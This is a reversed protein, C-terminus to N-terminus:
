SYDDLFMCYEENIRLRRKSDIVNSNRIFAREQKSLCGITEFLERFTMYSYIIGLPNRLHKLM